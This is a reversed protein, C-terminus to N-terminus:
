RPPARGDAPGSWRRCSKVSALMGGKKEATMSSAAAPMAARSDRISPPRVARSPRVQIKMVPSSSNMATSSAPEIWSITL